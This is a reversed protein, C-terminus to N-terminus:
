NEMRFGYTGNIHVYNNHWFIKGKPRNYWGLLFDLRRNAQDAMLDIKKQIKKASAAFERELDM